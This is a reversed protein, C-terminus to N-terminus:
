TKVRGRVSGGHALRLLTEKADAARLLTEGILFGTYGLAELEVIEARTRIGSESIAAREAPIRAALLRSVSIDTKLTNLDRNNVGIIAEQLPLVTELEAATHVEAIADLGAALAEAYLERLLAPALGAAILLVADAGLAASERVQYIDSIFDKRLIPLTSSGRAKCLDEACGSFYHPETLVSLAAAGAAEYGRAIAAPDYNRLLVGASPSAKKMEAIICTRGEARCQKLRESLRRREAPRPARRALESLPTKLAAERADELRRAMAAHLFDRMKEPEEKM